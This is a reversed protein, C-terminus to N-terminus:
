SQLPSIPFLIALLRVLHRRLEVPQHLHRGLLRQFGAHELFSAPRRVAM